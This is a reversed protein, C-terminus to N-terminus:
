VDHTLWDRHAQVHPLSCGMKSDEFNCIVASRRLRWFHMGRTAKMRYCTEGSSRCDSQSYRQQRRLAIDVPPATVGVRRHRWLMHLGMRHPGRRRPASRLGSAMLDLVHLCPPRSFKCKMRVHRVHRPWSGCSLCAHFLKDSPQPKAFQESHKMGLTEDGLQM